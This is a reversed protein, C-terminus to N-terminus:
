KCQLAARVSSVRQRDEVGRACWRSHAQRHQQRTPPWWMHSSRDKSREPIAGKMAAANTEKTQKLAPMASATMTFCTLACKESSMRTPMAKQSPAKKTLRRERWAAGHLGAAGGPLKGDQTAAACLPAVESGKARAHRGIMAAVFAEARARKSRPQQVM